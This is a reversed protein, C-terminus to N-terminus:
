RILSVDGAEEFLENVDDGEFRYQCRYIYVDMPAPSSNKMGNWGTELNTSSFVLDGWRNYVDLKFDTIDCNYLLNFIDNKGDGDPTFANPMASYCPCDEVIVTQIPITVMEGCLSVTVEYNGSSNVLLSDATSGDEWEFSAGPLDITILVEEGACITTDPLPSPFEIDLNKCVSETNLNVDIAEIIHETTGFTVGINALTFPQSTIVKIIDENLVDTQGCAFAFSPDSKGIYLTDRNSGSLTSFLLSGDSLLAMDTGLRSIPSYTNLLKENSLQEGESSFTLLNVELIDPENPDIYKDMCLINGNPLAELTAYGNAQYGPSVWVLDGNYDLKFLYHPDITTNSVRSSAFIYGGDVEVPPPADFVGTYSNAWIPDGNAAVKFIRNSMRGIYGGDSCAMGRGWIGAQSHTTASLLEGETNITAFLNRSTTPNDHSIGFIMLHGAATEDFSYILDTFDKTYSKFFVPSGDVTFQFVFLDTYSPDAWITGCIFYDGNSHKLFADVNILEGPIQYEKTWEIQLCPDYKILQIGDSQFSSLDKKISYAVLWGGDDTTVLHSEDSPKIAIKDVFTSQAFTSSIWLILFLFLIPNKNKM